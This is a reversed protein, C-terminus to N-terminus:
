DIVEWRCFLFDAPQSISFRVCGHRDVKCKRVEGTRLNEIRLREGPKAFRVRLAQRPETNLRERFLLFYGGQANGDLISEFGTWSSNDPEEGIPFVYGTFIARRHERYLSMLAGVRERDEPTYYRPVAMFEPIGMLATAVCYEEPHLHADTSPDTLKAHQIVLQYKNLNSYHSLLWFDRLALHPVYLVNEPSFPKRNMFHLNGYERAWYYGYRAHNETLDWSITSRHDAAKVYMRASDMMADLKDHTGFTAFDLKLQNMGLQEFNWIMDRAPMAQAVGWLGLRLGLSDAKARVRRWGDKYVSPAPRWGQGEDPVYSNAKRSVQWGDDILLLDAHIQKVYDMEKLIEEETAANRGDRQDRCHGWTCVLAYMDREVSVPYRMSDFRKLALQMQTEDGAYPIVWSGWYWKYTDPVIERLLLSTGTNYAGDADLLFAGTDVGYQNVCKHSEKVWILGESDAGFVCLSSWDVMESVFAGDRRVCKMIPTQPTNRFQTDNYYGIYTRVMKRADIPLYDNRGREVRPTDATHSDCNWYASLLYGRASADSLERIRDSVPEVAVSGADASEHIWVESLTAPDDPSPSEVFLKMSGDVYLRSPVEVTMEPSNRDLEYRESSEGDVTSLRIRLPAEGARKRGSALGLRYSRGPLLNSVQLQISKPHALVECPNEAESDVVQVKGSRVKVHPGQKRAEPQRAAIRSGDGRVYVQSRLGGTHPYIWVVYKVWASVSPYEFEFTTEVHRETFDEDTSEAVELRRLVAQQGGDLLGAYSWDCRITPTTNRWEKGTLSNRLSITLLGADTIRWSRSVCENAITVVDGERVVEIGKDAYYVQSWAGPASFILLLALLLRWRGVPMRNGNGMGM